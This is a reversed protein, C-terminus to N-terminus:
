RFFLLNSNKARPRIDDEIGRIEMARAKAKFLKEKLERRKALENLYLDNYDGELDTFTSLYTDTSPVTYKNRCNEKGYMDFTVKKKPTDPDKKGKSLCSSRSEMSFDADGAQFMEKDVSGKRGFERILMEARKMKEELLKEKLSIRNERDDLDRERSDLKREKIRLDEEWEKQSRSEPSSLRPRSDRRGEEHQNRDLGLSSQKRMVLPDNLVEDITPRQHVEVRIIKAIVSNLGDSYKNPIRVFDGVRIKKNLEHQNSATFPPRLACLEYLICGMSWIDSKENYSMNNVLEPSMYYPTGVYTKAFSTEHHLVRALGFDGLKVNDDSDLFINAPKLDRHLVAKGNKRRHCEQLAMTIQVLIKWVFEEDMYVEDRRCRTILTALDGRNCYEMIIYITTNSRDIIRDYYRVINSHRLERLLNVESVLMQKESETMSGYDMEKWALVKGDKKRRIKRCTGYSGSGITSIVAFDDLTSPMRPTKNKCDETASVPKHADGFGFALDMVHKNGTLGYGIGSEHKRVKVPVALPDIEVASAMDQAISM